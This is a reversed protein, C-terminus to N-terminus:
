NVEATRIHVQPLTVFKYFLNSLLWMNQFGIYEGFYLLIDNNEDYSITYNDTILKAIMDISYLTVGYRKIYAIKDLFKRYLGLSMYNSASLGTTVFRGGVESGTASFGIESDSYCEETFIFVNEQEFGQTVLPRRYGILKGISELETEQATIISLGHLYDCISDSDKLENEMANMYSKIVAGNMQKPLYKSQEIM